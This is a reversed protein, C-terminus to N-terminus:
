YYRQNEVYSKQNYKVLRTRYNKINQIYKYEGMNCDFIEYIHKQRVKFEDLEGEEYKKAYEKMIGHFTLM